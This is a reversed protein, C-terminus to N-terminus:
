VLRKPSSNGSISGPSRCPLLSLFSNMRGPPRALVMNVAKGSLFTGTPVQSLQDAGPKGLSVSNTRLCGDTSPIYWHCHGAECRPTCSAICHNYQNKWLLQGASRACLRSYLLTHVRCPLKVVRSGIRAKPQCCIIPKRMCALAVCSPNMSTRGHSFAGASLLLGFLYVQMHTHTHDLALRRLKRLSWVVWM